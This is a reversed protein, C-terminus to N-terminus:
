GQKIENEELGAPSQKSFKDAPVRDRRGARFSISDTPCVNICTACAFCDPIIRDQKLIAGMVTSPCAKACAECAICTEYDVKIRFISVKEALWGVLGFPCFLHCWPRYVFLGAVLLTGIFTVGVTGLVAPKYVKFPDIPDIIDYAWGFAIVTFVIFFAVRIGNTLWFPLKYQAAIGRTDKDNRNLRFILDQMTGLQCGWACIFKNALLVTLLFVTLAIMRPPFIVRKAGYLHIADKVTGMPSPDSGLIIGFIVVATLYLLKRTRPSVRGKRIMFFVFVLFLFWAGFKVPIKVWNKSEHEAALAQAKDFRSMLQERSLGFGIIPKQLDDRTELGLVEKMVPNAINNAAGFEMVTMDDRVVLERTEPLKEPKGGWMLTSVQALSATFAVLLLFYIFVKVAANNKM